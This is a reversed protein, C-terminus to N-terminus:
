QHASWLLQRERIADSILAKLVQRESVGLIPDRRFKDENVHEDGANSNIASMNIVRGRLSPILEEKDELRLGRKVNKMLYIYMDM